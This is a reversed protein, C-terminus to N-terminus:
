VNRVLWKRVQSYREAFQLAQIHDYPKKGVLPQIELYAEDLDNLTMIKQRILLWIDNLDQENGEVLSSLAVSLFDFYFVDIYGYPGVYKSRDQWIWPIPIINEPSSFDVNLHLQEACRQIYLVMRPEDATEIVLNLTNTTGARLGMHVLAAEGILYLNSPQQFYRALTQLFQEINARSTAYTSPYRMSM